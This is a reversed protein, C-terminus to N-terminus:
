DLLKALNMNLKSPSARVRERNGYAIQWWVNMLHINKGYGNEFTSDNKMLKTSNIFRQVKFNNASFISNDLVTDVPFVLLFYMTQRDMDKKMDSELKEHARKALACDVKGQRHYFDHSRQSYPLTPSSAMLVRGLLPAFHPWERPDPIFLDHMNWDPVEVSRRIQFFCQYPISKSIFQKLQASVHYADFIYNDVEKKDIKSICFPFNREPYDSNVQIIIPYEKTGHQQKFSLINSAVEDNEKDINSKKLPSTFGPSHYPLTTPTRMMNPKEIKPKEIKPKEINCKQIKAKETKPAIKIKSFSKYLDEICNDSSNSSESESESGAEIALLASASSLSESDAEIPLTPSQTSGRKPQLIDLEEKKLCAFTTPGPTVSHKQLLKLYNGVKLRKLSDFKKQVARRNSNRGPRGFIRPKSDCIKRFSNHTM